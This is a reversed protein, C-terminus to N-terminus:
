KKKKPKNPFIMRYDVDVNGMSIDQLKRRIMVKRLPNIREVFLRGEIHDYEHQIIRALIGDFHEEVLKFDRDHYELTIGPKRLVDERITPISLCGENFSWEEGSEEIIYPNIFVMKFGATEPHQEAYPNADIVFLRISRNVQPAALGVGESAYMTEYMNEILEDLGEYDPGIEEGVKKLTPHGYAVIPLIM